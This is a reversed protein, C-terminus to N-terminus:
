IFIFSNKKTILAYANDTGPTDGNNTTYIYTGTGVIKYKIQEIVRQMFLNDRSGIFNDIYVGGGYDLDTIGLIGSLPQQNGNKDLMYYEVQVEM